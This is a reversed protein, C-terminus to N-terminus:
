GHPGSCSQVSGTERKTPHSLSASARPM